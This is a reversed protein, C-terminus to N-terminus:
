RAIAARLDDALRAWGHTTRAALLAANSCAEYQGPNTLLCEIADALASSTPQNALIGAGTEEIQEILGGVPTAVAPIGLTLSYAFVGSQSAERYPLVLLDFRDVIGEVESDDIWQLNWVADLDTADDRLSGDPGSGHVEIRIPLGRVTLIRAAELFLDLGKYPLLRGFFGLTFPGCEPLRRVRSLSNRRNSWAPHVSTVIPTRNSDVQAELQSAVSQSFVVAINARGLESRLAFAQGPREEGLHPLADHVCVIYRVTSPLIRPVIMWQFVSTMVCVVAGVDHMRLFRRLRWAIIPLRYLGLLVGPKTRRYTRVELRPIDLSRYDAASEANVNFSISAEGPYREAWCRALEYTFRPGGGGTQGWHVLLVKRGM